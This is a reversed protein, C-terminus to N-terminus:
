LPRVTYATGSEMGADGEYDVILDKRNRYWELLDDHELPADHALVLLLSQGEPTTLRFRDEQVLTIHGTRREM